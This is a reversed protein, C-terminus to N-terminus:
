KMEKLQSVLDSLMGGPIQHALVGTDIVSLTNSSLFNSYKPAIAELHNGLSLLKRLDLGTDRSAGQLTVALPEVALVSTRMAFPALCTDVIDVGAEIAKLYTMSAM